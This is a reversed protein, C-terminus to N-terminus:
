MFVYKFESLPIRDKNLWLNEKLQTITLRKEAERTLMSSILDMLDESVYRTVPFKV